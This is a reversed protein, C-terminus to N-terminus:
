AARAQGDLPLARPSRTLRAMLLVCATAGLWPLALALAGAPALVAGERQSLVILTLNYIGHALMGPWLSRTRYAVFGLALGVVFTPLFRVLSVHMFAFMAASMVIAVIPSFRRLLGSLILGRFAFEECLAPTITIAVLFLPPVGGKGFGLAKELEEGMAEPIKVHSLIASMGLAMAVGLVGALPVTPWRPRRLLFTEPVALRLGRSLGFPVVLLLLLQPVFLTLVVNAGSLVLSSYFSLGLALAYYLLSLDATPERSWGGGSLKRWRVLAPEGLAENELLHCSFAIMLAGAVANSAISLIWNAIGIPQVFLTKALVSINVLPVVSAALSPQIDGSNVLLGPLMSCLLLMSLMAQAVSQRRALFGLSVSVASILFSLGVMAIALWPLEHLPLTESGPSSRGVTLKFLLLAPISYSALGLLSSVWVAAFKGLVLDRPRVPTSLLTQLTGSEREAVTAGMAPYYAALCLVMVILSLLVPGFLPVASRIPGSLVVTTARLPYVDAMSLKLSQLKSKFIEESESQFREFLLDSARQSRGETPDYFVRIRRGADTDKGTDVILADVKEKALVMRLDTEATEFERTRPGAILLAHVSRGMADIAGPGPTAETAGKLKALARNVDPTKPNLLAYTYHEGKEIEKRVAVAEAMWVFLIPYVVLPMGYTIVLAKWDRSTERMEKLFVTLISSRM